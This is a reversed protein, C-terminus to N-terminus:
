KTLRALSRMAKQFLKDDKLLDKGELQDLEESTFDREPNSQAGIPGPNAPAAASQMAAKGKMAYYANLGDMGSAVLESFEDGLDGLTKVSPDVAQIAALDRAMEQQLRYAKADAENADAKEKMARYLDTEKFRRENEAAADAQKRQYEEFTVGEDQARLMQLAQGADKPNLGKSRAYEMIGDSAKIAENRLRMEKQNHNKHRSQVVPKPEGDGPLVAGAPQQDAGGEDQPDVVGAAAANEATEPAVVETAGSMAMEEAM